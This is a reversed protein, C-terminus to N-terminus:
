WGNEKQKRRLKMIQKKIRIKDLVRNNHKIFGVKNNNFHAMISVVKELDSKNLKVSLTNSVAKDVSVYDLYGDQKLLVLSRESNIVRCLRDYDVKNM